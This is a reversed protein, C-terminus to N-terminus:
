RRTYGRSFLSKRQTLSGDVICKLKRYVSNRTAVHNKLGYTRLYVVDVVEVPDIKGEKRRRIRGIAQEVNKANNLSSVLYLVEWSKVNTGETAKAYTALTINVERNEAKQMLSESSEKNDGYYLMIQNEPVGLSKLCEYYLNIHEKQTFMAIVSRGKKYDNVISQCVKYKSQEDRVAYDDVTLYPITPRKEFPINSVMQYGNPLDKEEFDYYNFIQGKYIFPDYMVPSELERVKVRLIDKDDDTVIHKYCLGGLFLDFVFNLGDTRNPTATLGLKYKSNFSGIVNFINLGIHHCEDQIVLGFQSTYQELEDKNMRSLTQVTAITIQEGVERKKAKIIGVKMDSGFCLEIDKKWGTVLDDKHVLVLTKANLQYAIHLALITKGKGTPLQILNGRQTLYCEEAKQQDDRLELLFEPYDVSVFSRDDKYVLPGEEDKFLAKLDVGIPCSIYKAGNKDVEEDYYTIYPPISIYGSKSFRKAAKYAPNSFTLSDKLKTEQRVSLGFCHQTDKLHILM